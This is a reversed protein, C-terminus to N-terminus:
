VNFECFPPQCRDPCRLQRRPRRAGSASAIM